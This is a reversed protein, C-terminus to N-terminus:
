TLPPSFTHWQPPPITRGREYAAPGEQCIKRRDRAIADDEYSYFNLLTEFEAWPFALRLLKTSVEDQM